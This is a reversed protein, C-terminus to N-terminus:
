SKSIKDLGKIAQSIVQRSRFLVAERWYPDGPYAQNLHATKIERYLRTNLNGKRWCWNEERHRKLDLLPEYTGFELVVFTLRDKGLIRRYGNMGSGRVAPINTKGTFPAALWDGYIDVARTLEMEGESALNLVMGHGYPGLGTHIDIVVVHEATSAYQGLISESTLNSWTPKNGGYFLGHPHKYQGVILASLLAEEGENEIYSDLIADAKQREPGSISDLELASHLKDYTENDPYPQKHELYNRNLDVNDETERRLWAAGYPNIMHIILVATDAPLAAPGGRNIWDLQCASGALGEVGHTGSILILLRSAADPGFLAVDVWLPQDDPGSQPHCVSSIAADNNKCATTFKDRAAFYSQSFCETDM